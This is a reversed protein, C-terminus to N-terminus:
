NGNRARRWTWIALPITVSVSVVLVLLFQNWYIRERVMLSFQNADLGRLVIPLNIGSVLFGLGGGFSVGLFAGLISTLLANTLSSYVIKADEGDIAVLHALWSALPLFLLLSIYGQVIIDATGKADKGIFLAVLAVGCGVLLGLGGIISAQLIASTAIAKVPNGVTNSM